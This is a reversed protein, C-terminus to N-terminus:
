DCYNKSRKCACDTNMIFNYAVGTLCLTVCNFPQIVLVEVLEVICRTRAEKRPCIARMVAPFRSDEIWEMLWEVRSVQADRLFVIFVYEVVVQISVTLWLILRCACRVVAAPWTLLFPFLEVVTEVSM